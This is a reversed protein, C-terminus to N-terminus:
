ASEYFAYRARARHASKRLDAATKLGLGWQALAPSQTAAIHGGLMGGVMQCEIRATAARIGVINIIPQCDIGIAEVYVLHM